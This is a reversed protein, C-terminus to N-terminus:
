IESKRQVGNVATCLQTDPSSCSEVEGFQPQASRHNRYPVSRYYYIHVKYSGVEFFCVGNLRECLNPSEWRYEVEECCEYKKCLRVEFMPLKEAVKLKKCQHMHLPISVALTSSSFFIWFIWDEVWAGMSLKCELLFYFCIFLFVLQWM